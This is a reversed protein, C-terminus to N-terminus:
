KNFIKKVFKKLKSEGNLEERFLTKSISMAARQTFYDKGNASKAYELDQIQQRYGLLLCESKSKQRRLSNLELHIEKMQKSTQKICDLQHELENIHYKYVDTVEQDNIPNVKLIDIYMKLTGVEERHGEEILALAESEIMLAQQKDINDKILGETESIANELFVKKKEYDLFERGKRYYILPCYM